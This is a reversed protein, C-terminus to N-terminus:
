QRCGSHGDAEHGARPAHPGTGIGGGGDRGDSLGPNLPSARQFVTDLILPHRGRFCLVSYSLTVGESVRCEPDPYVAREFVPGLIFPHRERFCM